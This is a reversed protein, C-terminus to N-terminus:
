VSRAIGSSSQGAIPKKKTGVEVGHISGYVNYLRINEGHKIPYNGVIHMIKKFEPNLKRVDNAFRDSALISRAGGLDMIRRAHVIGSGWVNRNGLLDEIQYVQGTDLGIRIDLRNKASKDNNYEAIAGHLEIALMLPKEANDRFGIAYGDGTPLIITPRQERNRFTDTKQILKNLGIIKGAQDGNAISTDSLAVIDTFFWYYTGSSKPVDFEIVDAYGLEKLFSDPCANLMEYTTMTPTVSAPVNRKRIRDLVWYKDKDLTELSSMIKSIQLKKKSKDSM